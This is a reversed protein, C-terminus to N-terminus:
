PALVREPAETIIDLIPAISRDEFIVGLQRLLDGVAKDEYYEGALYGPFRLHYDALADLARKSLFYLAGKAYPGVVPLGHLPAVASACKGQHWGRDFYTPSVSVGMYDADAFSSRVASIDLPRQEAIAVDDDIKLLGNRAGLAAMLTFTEFIKYPLAEYVDSVPIQLIQADDVELTLSDGGVIIMPKVGFYKPTLSRALSRAQDLYKVCSIIIPLPLSLSECQAVWAALTPLDREVHKRIVEHYADIIQRVNKADPYSKIAMRILLVTITDIQGNAHRDLFLELTLRSIVQSSLRSSAHRNLEKVIDIELADTPLM